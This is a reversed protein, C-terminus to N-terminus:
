RWKCMLGPSCGVLSEDSKFSALSYTDVSVVLVDIVDPM